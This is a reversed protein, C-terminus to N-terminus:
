KENNINHKDKVKFHSSTILENTNIKIENEYLTLPCREVSVIIIITIIIGYNNQLGVTVDRPDVADESDAAASQHYRRSKVSGQRTDVHNSSSATAANNHPIPPSPQGTFYLCCSLWPHRRGLRACEKQFQNTQHNSYLGWSYWCTEIHNLLVAFYCLFRNVPLGAITDGLFFLFFCNILLMFLCLVSYVSVLVFFAIKMLTFYVYFQTKAAM